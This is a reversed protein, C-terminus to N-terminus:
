EVLTHNASSCPVHVPVSSLKYIYLLTAYVAQVHGIALVKSRPDLQLHCVQSGFGEAALYGRTMADGSSTCVLCVVDEKLSPRHVALIFRSMCVHAAARVTRLFSADDGDTEKSPSSDEAQHM